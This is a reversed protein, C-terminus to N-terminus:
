RWNITLGVEIEKIKEKFAKKRKEPPLNELGEKNVQPRLLNSIESIQPFIYM